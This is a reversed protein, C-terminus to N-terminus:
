FEPTVEILDWSAVNVTIDLCRDQHELDTEKFILNMRYIKGPEFTTIATGSNMKYTNTFLYAPNDASDGDKEIINLLHLPSTTHGNCFFNYAINVDVSTNDKTLVVEPSSNEEGDFFDNNWKAKNMTNAFYNFIGQQTLDISRLSESLVNGSRLDCKDYFDAFALSKVTLTKNPSTINCGIKKVEFRAVRPLVNLTVKYVNSVHSYSGNEHDNVVNTSLAGEAYLPFNTVDQYGVIELTRDLSNKSTTTIQELNGVVIVEKVSPPLFHFSLSINGNLARLEDTDLYVDSDTQDANKATYFTTGDSFFFQLSNLQIKEDALDHDTGLAKTGMKINNISVEVSKYNKADEVPSEKQCAALAVAAAFAACM